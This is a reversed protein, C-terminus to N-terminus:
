GDDSNSRLSLTASAWEVKAVIRGIKEVEDDDIFTMAAASIIFSCPATNEFIECWGYLESEGGGWFTVM